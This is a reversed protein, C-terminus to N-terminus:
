VKKFYSYMDKILLQIQKIIDIGKEEDYPNIGLRDRIMIYLEAEMDMGCYWPVSFLSARLEEESITFYPDVILNGNTFKLIM